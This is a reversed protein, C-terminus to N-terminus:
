RGRRADHGDDTARSGRTRRALAPPRRPPEPRLGRLVSRRRRRRRVGAACCPPASKPISHSRILAALRRGGEGRHTDHVLATRPSWHGSNTVQWGRTIAPGSCDARRMPMTGGGRPSTCGGAARSSSRRSCSAQARRESAASGPRHHRRGPEPRQRRHHNRGGRPRERDGQHPQGVREAMGMAQIGEHGPVGAPVQLHGLTAVVGRWHCQTAGVHM